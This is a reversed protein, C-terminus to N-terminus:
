NQIVLPWIVASQWEFDFHKGTIPDDYPLLWWAEYMSGASINLPTVEGNKTPHWQKAVDPHTTQIDNFGAWVRKGSLFPCGQNRNVRNAVNAQWEFDFHKGTIPDNYPLFWWVKKGSCAAVNVPELNGNKTPHWQNLIDKHGNEICWDYLTQTGPRM